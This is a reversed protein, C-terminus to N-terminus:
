KYTAVVQGDVIQIDTVDPPLKLKERNEPSELLQQAASQLVSAPLPLSGLSGSVPEFKLYGGEAHVHGDLELSLDQGHFNYVIYAKVLDGQMDVRVDKVSSQVEELTPAAQPSSQPSSAPSAPVVAAAAPAVPPSAIPAETRGDIALNQNLYSNLEVNDLQLQHPQGVSSAAESVRIKEEARVAANPDMKVPPPAGKRLILIFVLVVFALAVWRARRYFNRFGAFASQEEVIPLTDSHATGDSVRPSYLTGGNTIQAATEAYYAFLTSCKACKDGGDQQYGCNPCVIVNRIYCAAVGAATGARPM